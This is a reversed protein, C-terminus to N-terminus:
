PCSVVAPQEDVNMTIRRAKFYHPVGPFLGVAQRQLGGPQLQIDSLRVRVNGTNTLAIQQGECRWSWGAKQREPDPMHRVMVGYGISFSMPASIKEKPADTVSLATVPTIYLRYLEEQEPEALSTLHIERSQNPGLALKEPTALMGPHALNGLFVKQEPMNGPNSVKALTMALYLPTDGENRVKIVQDHGHLLRTSTPLVLLEGAARVALSALLMAATALLVLGTKRNM